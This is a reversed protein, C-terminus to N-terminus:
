GPTPLGSQLQHSRGPHWQWRSGPWAAEAHPTLFHSISSVLALAGTCSLVSSIIHAMTGFSFEDLVPSAPFGAGDGELLLEVGLDVPWPQLFEGLFIADFIGLPFYDGGIIVLQIGDPLCALLQQQIHAYQIYGSLAAYKEAFFFYISRKLIQGASDGQPLPLIGDGDTVPIKLIVVM